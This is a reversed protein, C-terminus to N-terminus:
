CLFVNVSLVFFVDDYFCDIRRKVRFTSIYYLKLCKKGSTYSKIVYISLLVIRCVCKRKIRVSAVVYVYVPNEVEDTVYM